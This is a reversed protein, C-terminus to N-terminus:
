RELAIAGLDLSQGVALSFPRVPKGATILTYLGPPLFPLAFGGDAATFSTAV